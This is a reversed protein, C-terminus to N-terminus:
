LLQDIANLYFLDRGQADRGTLQRKMTLLGSRSLTIHTDRSAQTRELGSFTYQPNVINGPNGTDFNTVSRVIEPKAIDVLFDTYFIPLMGFFLYPLDQLRGLRVISERMLSEARELQSAARMALEKIERASLHIRHRERRSPFYVHSSSRFRVCHPKA